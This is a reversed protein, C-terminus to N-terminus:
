HDMSEALRQAAKHFLSRASAENKLEMEQAIEPWGMDLVLRHHLVMRYRESMALMAQELDAEFERQAVAASPSNGLSRPANRAVTSAGLDAMRAVKGSGRKQAHHHRWADRVRSEVLRGLWCVFSGESRPEFGQLNTLAEALAEQVLDDHEVFRELTRGTRLAVLGRVRPAYRAFLEDTARTDGTRARRVLAITQLLRTEPPSPESM